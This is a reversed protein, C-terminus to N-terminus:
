VGMEEDSWDFDDESWDFGNDFTGDGEYVIALSNFIMDSLGDVSTQQSISVTVEFEGIPLILESVNMSLTEGDIDMTAAYEIVTMTVGHTNTKESVSLDSINAGLLEEYLPVYTSEYEEKTIGLLGTPESPTVNVFVSDLYSAYGGMLDGLALVEWDLGDPLDFSVCDDEYKPADAAPSTDTEDDTSSEEATDTTQDPADVTTNEETVTTTEPTSTTEHSSSEEASVSEVSSESQTETETETETKTETETETQAATTDSTDGGDNQNDCSALALAVLLALIITVFSLIKKM